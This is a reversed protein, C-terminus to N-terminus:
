AIPLSGMEASLGQADVLVIDVNQGGTSGGAQDRVIARLKRGGWDGPPAAGIGEGARDEVVGGDCDRDRVTVEDGAEVFIHYTLPFYRRVSLAM